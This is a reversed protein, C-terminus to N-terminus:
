SKWDINSSSFEGTSSDTSLTLKNTSESIEESVGVDNQTQITFVKSIEGRKITQEGSVFNIQTINNVDAFVYNISFLFAAMITAILFFMNYKVKSMDLIIKADM